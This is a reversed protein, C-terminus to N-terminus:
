SSENKKVLYVQWPLPKKIAIIEFKNSLLNIFQRPSWNNIHGPTNGYNKLYKLRCINLFCWLPENPVSFICYKKTVSEILELAKEPNELHELVECCVMLEASDELNLDYVSKVYFDVRQEKCRQMAIDVVRKSLDFAKISKFNLSALSSIIYGEGCGIETLSYCEEKVSEILRSVTKMFNNTLYKAIFNKAEYKNYYNGDVFDNEQKNKQLVFLQNMGFLFKKSVRIKMNIKKTLSEIFEHDVDSIHEEDAERSVIGIRAGISHVFEFRPNPVTIVIQGEPELKDALDRLIKEPNKIHELVALMSITNFKAMNQMADDVSVFMSDPYLSKAYARIEQSLEVGYYGTDVYQSLHGAGCGFDMVKGQLYPKVANIRQRRLFPSLLGTEQDTM